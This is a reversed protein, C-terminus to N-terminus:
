KLLSGEYPNHLTFSVSENEEHYVYCWGRYDTSTRTPEKNSIQVTVPVSVVQGTFTSAVCIGSRWMGIPPNIQLPGSRDVIKVSNHGLLLYFDPSVFGSDASSLRLSFSGNQLSDACNLTWTIGQTGLTASHELTPSMSVGLLEESDGYWSLKVTKGLLPSDPRPKVSISHVAGRCPYATAGLFSMAMSDFSVTVSDAIDDASVVYGPLPWDALKNSSLMLGFHGGSTDSVDIRWELPQSTVPLVTGLAPTVSLGSQGAQWLDELQVDAQGILPSGPRPVLQLLKSDVAEFVIPGSGLDVPHGDLRLEFERAWSNHALAMVEFPQEMTVGDNEGSIDAWVTQAGAILPTYQYRTWGNSNTLTTALDAEAQRWHVELGEVGLESQTSVAQVRLWVSQGSGVVPLGIVPDADAFILTSAAVTFPVAPVSWGSEDIGYRQQVELTYATGPTLEFVPRSTWNRSSNVTPTDTGKIDDGQKVRLTVRANAVGSGSFWLIPNVVSDKTPREISPPNVSTRVVTFPHPASWDSTQSQHQQMVEISQEGQELHEKVVFLWQGDADAPGQFLLAQNGVHRVTVEAYPECTGGIEPSSSSNSGAEPFGFVPAQLPAAVTFTCMDSLDSDVGGVTQVVWVKQEGPTWPQQPTFDRLTGSGDFHGPVVVGSDAWMTLTASLAVSSIQLSMDPAIMGDPAIISAKAPKVALTVIDSRDSEVGLASQEVQVKQLGLGFPPDPSFTRTPGSGEYVGPRLGGAENYMTLTPQGPVVNIITLRHGPDISGSPAVISPTALRVKVTVPKSPDSSVNDVFEVVVVQMIGAPWPPSPTFERYNSDAPEFTGTMQAGTEANLMVRQSGLFILPSVTMLSDTSAIPGTPPTISLQQPKVRLTMEDSPDSAIGDVSQTVRLKREGPMWGGNPTFVRTGGGETFSGPVEEGTETLIALTVTGPAVGTIELAQSAQVPEAVATIAPRTPKIQLTVAASPDSEVGAVIQIAQVAIMGFPWTPEPKFVAVTGDVSFVGAIGVGSAEQMKLTAGSAVGRVEVSGDAQIPVTPAIVTLSPPKPNGIAFEMTLSWDSEAKSIPAIQKAMIVYKGYPEWDTTAAVEWTGDDRVTTRLQLGGGRLYIDLGSGKFGNSGRVTPRLGNVTVSEIVPKFLVTVPVVDSWDSAIGSLHQIAHYNFPDAQWLDVALPVIRWETNAMVVATGLPQTGLNQHYLTVTAGVTGHGSAGHRPERVVANRAPYDITPKPPKIRLTVVDSADSPVGGVTQVVKVRKEGPPAWDATPTFTRTTGSGTFSGALTVGAQTQMTLTVVGSAVGTITLAHRGEIPQTIPTIAPKPPKPQVISFRYNLSWDSLRKSVPAIQRATITHTGVPWDTTASVLWDGGSMVTTTLRVGGAGGEIWIELTAGALGGGGVITPRLGALVVNAIIPKFLVIAPVEDSWQNTGQYQQRAVYRFPDAQWLDVPLPSIQWFGNAGTTTTGLPRDGINQHYVTITSYSQALGSVGARPEKILDNTNPYGITPKAYPVTLNKSEAWGGWILSYRYRIRFHCTGTIIRNAPVWIRCTTGAGASGHFDFSGWFELKWDTIFIGPPGYAEVYFGEKSLTSNSKPTVITPDIWLLGSREDDTNMM